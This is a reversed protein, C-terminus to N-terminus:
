KNNFIVTLPILSYCSITNGRIQVKRKRATVRNKAPKSINDNRMSYSSSLMVYMRSGTNKASIYWQKECLTSYEVHRVANPACVEPNRRASTMNRYRPGINNRFDHACLYSIVGNNDSFRRSPLRHRKVCRRRSAIENKWQLRLVRSAM